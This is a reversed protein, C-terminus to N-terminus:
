APKTRDRMAPDRDRETTKSLPVYLGTEGLNEIFGSIWKRGGPSKLWLEKKMAEARDRFEEKFILKWPRYAKTSRVLGSKHRKLRNEIDQTQGVYSRKSKDSWILYVFFKM